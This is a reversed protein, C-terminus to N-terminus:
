EASKTQKIMVSGQTKYKVKEDDENIVMRDMEGDADNYNIKITNEDDYKISTGHDCDKLDLNRPSTAPSSNAM